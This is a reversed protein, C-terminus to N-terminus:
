GIKRYAIAARLELLKAKVKKANNPGMRLLLKQGSSASQLQPDAFEYLVHPRTLEMPGSQNPTALMDDITEVLRDNFYGKPYGLEVYADQFLPYFRRYLDTLDVIDTEAVIAVLQDYRAYSADSITFRDAGASDVDFTGTLASVPRMREAVHSRPLNDVTAVFREIVDADALLNGISSGFLDTLELRFYQDSDALAPLERLDESGAPSFDTDPIPYQPGEPKVPQLTSQEVIPPSVVDAGGPNEVVNWYYWLGGGALAALVVPVAWSATDKEM